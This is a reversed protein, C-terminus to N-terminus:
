GSIKLECQLCVFLRLSDVVIFFYKSSSLVEMIADCFVNLVALYPSPMKQIFRISEEM